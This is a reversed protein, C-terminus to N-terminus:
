ITVVQIPLHSDASLYITKTYTALMLILEAKWGETTPLDIVAALRVPTILCIANVHTPHCNVNFLAMYYYYYCYYMQIAGYHLLKLPLHYLM